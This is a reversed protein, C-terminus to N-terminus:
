GTPACSPPLVDPTTVSVYDDANTVTKVQDSFVKSSM